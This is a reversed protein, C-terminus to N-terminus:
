YFAIYGDTRKETGCIYINDCKQIIQGRGFPGSSLSVSIEHGMRELKEAIDTPFDKEVIIKKEKIWQWRPADLAAQPNLNLDIMNSVVQMHGQPQMFGGMVGFPGVPNGNKTIFGPIITHYPKKLPSIFNIHEPDTSFGHGRNQLSIGTEPIVIGSGFGMYNSQIFSVMNGWKDATAIYVTGSSPLNGPEPLMAKETIEKFRKKAYTKSLLDEVSVTMKNKDTIFKKGDEFALKLSEIMNHYRYSENSFDSFDSFINLGMLAIIGQGNPPIEWIDYGRYNVSVPDTYESEFNNFDSYSFYGGTKDSFEVIKETIEGRYFANTDSDAIKRLTEAHYPLKIIEGPYPAKGNFLFTDKWPIFEEGTLNKYIESAKKWYFSTNVSLPFGEEAYRVAPIFLKRFDLKGFDQSLKKWGAPAGPVTVAEWSHPNINKNKIKETNIKEPAYGSSNLGYLKGNYWSVSFNDGGIGNSTPEVVTLAIAAAIAADIANGGSELIELGAKAALPTSTAVAGNGAFIINRSSSYPYDFYDYKM